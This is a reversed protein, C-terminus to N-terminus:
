EGRSGEEVMAAIAKIHLLDGDASQQVSWDAIKVVEFTKGYYQFRDGRVQMDERAARLPFHTYVKVLERTRIGDPQNAREYESLPQICATMISESEIPGDTWKGQFYTGASYRTLQYERGFREVTGM